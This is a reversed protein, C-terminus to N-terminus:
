KVGMIEHREDPDQSRSVTYAMTIPSYGRHDVHMLAYHLADIAHKWRKDTEYTPKDIYLGDEGRIRKSSYYRLSNYLCSTKNGRPILRSNLKLREDILLKHIYDERIRVAKNLKHRGGRYRPTRGLHKRILDVERSGSRMKAADADCGIMKINHRGYGRKTLEMVVDETTKNKVVIEDYVWFENRHKNHWIVLWSGTRYGPDIGLIFQYKRNRVNVEGMSVCHRRPDFAHAFREGSSGKVWEGLVQQRVYLEGAERMTTFWNDPLYPNELSSATIIHKGERPNDLEDYMEDYFWHGTEPTGVFVKQMFLARKDRVRNRARHLIARRKLMTVEDVLLAAIDVAVASGEDVLPYCDLDIGSAFEIRPQTGGYFGDKSRGTRATLRRGSRREIVSIAERVAPISRKSLFKLDPAGLVVRLHNVDVGEHGHFWGQNKLVLQVAKYGLVHSKGFGAGSILAVEDADSDLLAAQGPWFKLPANEDIKM